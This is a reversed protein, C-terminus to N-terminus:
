AFEELLVKRLDKMSKLRDKMQTTDVNLKDLSVVAAELSALDAEMAIMRTRAEPSLKILGPPKAPM